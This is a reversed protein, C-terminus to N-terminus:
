FSDWICVHIDGGVTHGHHFCTTHCQHRFNQLDGMLYQCQPAAQWSGYPAGVNGKAPNSLGERRCKSNSHWSPTKLLRPHPDAGWQAVDQHQILIKVVQPKIKGGTCCFFNFNLLSQSSAWDQPIRLVKLTAKPGLLSPSPTPSSKQPKKSSHIM